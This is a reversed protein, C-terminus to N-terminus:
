RSCDRKEDVFRADSSRQHGIKALLSDADPAGGRVRILRGAPKELGNTETVMPKEPMGGPQEEVVSESADHASVPDSPTIQLIDRHYRDGIAQQENGPTGLLPNVPDVSEILVPSQEGQSRWEVVCTGPPEVRHGGDVAPEQETLSPLGM